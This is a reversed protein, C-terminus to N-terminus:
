MHGTSFIGLTKQTNSAAKLQSASQVLQYGRDQFAKYYDTGNWSSKGPL